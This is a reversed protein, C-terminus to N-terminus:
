KTQRGSTRRPDVLVPKAQKRNKGSNNPQIPQDSSQTVQAANQTPTNSTVQLNDAMTAWTRAPGQPPQPVNEVGQNFTERFNPLPQSSPQNVIHAQQAQVPGSPVPRFVQPNAPPQSNKLVHLAAILNNIQAESPVNRVYGFSFGRQNATHIISNTLELDLSKIFERNYEINSTRPFKCWESLSDSGKSRM